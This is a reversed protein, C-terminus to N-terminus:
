DLRCELITIAIPVSYLIGAWHIELNRYYNTDLRLRVTEVGFKGLERAEVGIEPCNFSNDISRFFSLITLMSSSGETIAPPFGM